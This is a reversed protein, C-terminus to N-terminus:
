LREISLMSLSLLFYIFSYRNNRSSNRCVCRKIEFDFSLINLFLSDSERCFLWYQMEFHWWAISICIFKGWFQVSINYHWFSEATKCELHRGVIWLDKAGKYLITNRINCRVLAVYIRMLIRDASFIRNQLLRM